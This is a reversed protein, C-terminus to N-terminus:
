STKHVIYGIALAAIVVGAAIIQTKNGSKPNNEGEERYGVPTDKGSEMM